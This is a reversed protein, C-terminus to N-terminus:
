VRAPLHHMLKRGLEPFNVPKSVYDAAGARLCRETDAESAFATLSIVPIDRTRPIAKLRRIAELGDIGAMKVDMLILDPLHEQAQTIAEEGGTAKIVRYGEGQLYMCLIELNVEFDDVALILAGSPASPGVPLVPAAPPAVTPV